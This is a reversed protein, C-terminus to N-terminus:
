AVQEKSVAPATSAQMSKVLDAASAGELSLGYGVERVIREKLPHIFHVRTNRRTVEPVKLYLAALERARSLAKGNAVVEAVVGWEHATRATLPQPNLLFAEARGAGARYSWATFIGDGPVIGGAFHPLDHFSAGEGAVIVNALLAYESHVHARGEVAAIVPVRINAINELLQVGEDHVQSWVGPDAVNGFSSFDIEPIFEGGAGTLIVFKNARDQAIRYFADVFQTHDQDTMIFPGGDSHFQAVLIGKADRTLKLNGYAAFYNDQPAQM